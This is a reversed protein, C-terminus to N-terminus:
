SFNITAENRLSYDLDYVGTSYTTIVESVSNKSNLLDSCLHKAKIQVFVGDAGLHEDIILSINKTMTEQLTLDNSLNSVLDAFKSIGAIKDKPLVAINVTGFFPMLHHECLSIFSVGKIYIPQNHTVDDLHTFLDLYENKASLKEQIQNLFKSSLQNIEDESKSVTQQLFESLAIKTEQLNFDKDNV